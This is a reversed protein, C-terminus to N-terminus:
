SIQQLKVVMPPLLANCGRSKFPGSLLAPKPVLGIFSNSSGKGKLGTDTSRMLLGKNSCEKSNM